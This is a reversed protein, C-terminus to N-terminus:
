ESGPNARYATFSKSEGCDDHIWGAGAGISYGVTERVGHAALNVFLRLGNGLGDVLM